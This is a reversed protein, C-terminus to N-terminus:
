FGVVKIGTEVSWDYPRSNGVGLSPRAYVSAVGGWVKAVMKGIELDFTCNVRDNNEYDFTVTPDFIVWMKQKPLPKVVYLDLYGESVHGRADDGGLDFNHQYIPAFLWPGPFFFAMGGLPAAVYRGRGLNKESATDFLFEGGVVVGLRRDIYPIYMTKLKLDGLGFQDDPERTLANTPADSGKLPLTAKIGLNNAIAYNFLFNTTNSYRSGDLDQYENFIRVENQINTPNTGSKDSKAAPGSPAASETPSATNENEAFIVRDFVVLFSLVLSGALIARNLHLYVSRM